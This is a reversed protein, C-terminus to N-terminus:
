CGAAPENREIRARGGASIFIQRSSESYNPKCLNFSGTIFGGLAGSATYSICTAFIGGGGSGILTLDGALRESVQLPGEPPPTCTNNTDVFIIWGRHYGGASCTVGDASSCLSVRTNRKIAESRTQNLAVLFANANSTLRNENITTRFTPIGIAVVIAVIAVTIMLEILTFGRIRNVARGGLIQLKFIVFVEM